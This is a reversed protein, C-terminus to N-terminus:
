GGAPGTRQYLVSAADVSKDVGTYSSNTSVVPIGIWGSTLEAQVWRLTVPDLSCM